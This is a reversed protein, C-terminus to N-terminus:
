LRPKGHWLRGGRSNTKDSNQLNLTFFQVSFLIPDIIQNLQCNQKQNGMTILTWEQVLLTCWFFDLFDVFPKHFKRLPVWEPTIGSTGYRRIVRIDKPSTPEPDLRAMPNCHTKLRFCVKPHTGTHYKTVKMNLNVPLSKHVLINTSLLRLLQCNV